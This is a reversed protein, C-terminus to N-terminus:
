IGQTDCWKAIAITDRWCNGVIYVYKEDFYINDRVIRYAEDNYVRKVPCKRTIRRAPDITICGAGIVLLLIISIIRM